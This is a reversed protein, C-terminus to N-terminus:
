NERVGQMWKPWKSVEDSIEELQKRLCECPQLGPKYLNKRKPDHVHNTETCNMEDGKNM